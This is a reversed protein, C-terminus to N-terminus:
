RRTRRLARLGAPTLVGRDTVFGTIYRAPTIDFAFNRAHSGRPAIPTGGLTLVEAEDREELPISRGTRANFDVTTLPAAVYFPVRNAKAVVAKPYTGVKNATDGNAAIRDAGVLVLDVEGRQILLGCASDVVIAHDIGEQELEWATLRSGQLRPRTESVYVFFGIGAERAARMPAMATGHDVAALAGANCHTLIRMGERILRKGHRGIALCREEDEKAYEEAADRATGGDRVRGLVFDIAAFLDHGTPRTTRLRIAVRELDLGHSEALALGYAATAGIAPAGRVAMSEIARAVEDPNRAELIRLEFPLARQDIMKVVDGELWVTKLDRPAGDIRIRLPSM